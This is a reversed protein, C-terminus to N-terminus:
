TSFSISSLGWPRPIGTLFNGVQSATKALMLIDNQETEDAIVDSVAGQFAKCNLLKHDLLFKAANVKCNRM